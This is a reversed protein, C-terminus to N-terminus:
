ISYLAQSDHVSIDLAPTQLTPLLNVAVFTTQQTKSTSQPFHLSPYASRQTPPLLSTLKLLSGNFSSKTANCTELLHKIQAALVLFYNAKRGALHCSWTNTRPSSLSLRAHTYESCTQKPLAPNAWAFKPPFETPHEFAWQYPLMYVDDLVAFKTNKSTRESPGTIQCNLAGSQEIEKFNRACRVM